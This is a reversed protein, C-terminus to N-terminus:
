RYNFETINFLEPELMPPATEGNFVSLVLPSGWESAEEIGQTLTRM